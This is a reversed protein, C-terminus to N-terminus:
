AQRCVRELTQAAGEDGPTRPPELRLALLDFRCQEALAVSEAVAQPVDALWARAAERDPLHTFPAPAAITGYRTRERIARLLTHLERDAPGLMTVDPAAVSRVTALGPPGGPRLLYRVDDAPVGAELLARTTAADEALFFLGRPQVSLCELVPADGHATRRRASVIRCLSEYGTEDRALLVLRSRGGVAPGELEVGTIPRVGAARAVLHFRVQGYLNERDTLALAPFGREAAARALAEVSTTGLGLSYESKVHLPAFM